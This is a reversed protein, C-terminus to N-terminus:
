GKGQKGENEKMMQDLGMNAYDSAHMMDMDRVKSHGRFCFYSM